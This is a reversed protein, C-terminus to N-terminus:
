VARSLDEGQEIGTEETFLPLLNSLELYGKSDAITHNQVHNKKLDILWFELLFELDSILLLQPSQFVNM